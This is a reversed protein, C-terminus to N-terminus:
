LLLDSWFAEKKEGRKYCTFMSSKWNGFKEAELTGVVWFLPFDLKVSALEKTRFTKKDLKCYLLGSNNWRVLNHIPILLGLSISKIIEMVLKM